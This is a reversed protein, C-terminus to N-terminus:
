PWGGAPVLKVEEVGGRRLRELNSAFCGVSLVDPDATAGGDYAVKEDGPEDVVHM